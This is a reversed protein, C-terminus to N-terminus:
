GNFSGDFPAPEPSVPAVPQLPAPRLREAPASCCGDARGADPKGVLEIAPLEIRVTKPEDPIFVGLLGIVNLGVGIWFDVKGTVTQLISDVDAPQGKFVFYLTIGGTLVASLGRKTSGEHLKIKNHISTLWSM